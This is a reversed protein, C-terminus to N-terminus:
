RVTRVLATLRLPSRLWEAPSAFVAVIKRDVNPGALELAFDGFARKRTSPRFESLVDTRQNPGPADPAPIDVYKLGEVPNGYAMLQVIRM